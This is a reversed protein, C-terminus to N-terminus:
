PPTACWSTGAGRAADVRTLSFNEDPIIAGDFRALPTFSGDPWGPALPRNSLLVVPTGLQASHRFAGCAVDRPPVPAVRARDWIIFSGERAGQLYYASRIGAYGLVGAAAVDEYAVIPETGLGEETLYTATARAMSFPHQWDSIGISLGGVFHVLLVATFAMRAPRDFRSTPNEGAGDEDRSRHLWHAMVFVLFLYGHHRISGDLKVYLLASISGMGLMFLWLVKQRRAFALASVVTVIAAFLTATTRWAAEHAFNRGWSSLGLPPLPVFADRVAYGLRTWRAADHRFYWEVAFGSDAPPMITAVSAAIGVAVAALGVWWTPGRPRGRSDLLLLPFIALVLALGLANAQSLLVLVFSVWLWRERRSSWLACLTLGLLMGLGYNRAVITYEYSVFYGTALLLKEATSFPSWRAMVYVAGAGVGVALVQMSWPSGFIAHVAKLCLYWLAPHGGYDLNGILEGISASDRVTLWANMEDRWMEHRAARLLSLLSFAFTLAWPLWSPRRTVSVSASVSM